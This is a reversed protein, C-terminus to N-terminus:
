SRHRARTSFRDLWNKQTEKTMTRGAQLERFTLRMFGAPAQSSHGYELIVIYSVANVLVIFQDPGRFSEQFSSAAAGEAVAKPDKGGPVPISNALLYSTWGARARGTDVPTKQIVRRLFVFAVARLTDRAANKQMGRILTATWRRFNETELEFAVANLKAMARLYQKVHFM